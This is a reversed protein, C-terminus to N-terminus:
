KMKEIEKRFERMARCELYRQLKSKLSIENHNSSREEESRRRKRDRREDHKRMDTIRISGDKGTAQRVVHKAQYGKGVETNRFQNLDVAAPVDKPGKQRQHQLELEDGEWGGKSRLVGHPIQMTEEESQEGTM